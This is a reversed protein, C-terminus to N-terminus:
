YDLGAARLINRMRLTDAGPRWEECWWCGVCAYGVVRGRRDEIPMGISSGYDAPNAPHYREKDQRARNRLDTATPGAIKLLADLPVPLTDGISQSPPM